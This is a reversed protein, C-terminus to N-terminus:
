ARRTRRAVVVAGSGTVLLVLGAALLWGMDSGTVALARSRGPSAAPPAAAPPTVAGVAATLTLAATGARGSTIGVAGLSGSGTQTGAPITVTVQLNGGADAVHTGLDPGSGGNVILSLRVQEGPLMGTVGVTVASGVAVSSPSVAVTVAPAATVTLTAPDTYAGGFENAFYARYQSGSDAVRATFSLTPSTAGTIDTWVGAILRQWQVSPAPDGTASATFAVSTGDVATVDAPDTVVWAVEGAASEDGDEQDAVFSAVWSMVSNWNVTIENTSWSQIDDIYCLQPACMHEDNYLGSIVPDWTGTSSNPGGAVSGPPPNPMSPEISNAFWRSHQNESFVDGYATISSNNLANRGLLYDMSELVADAFRQDSTLDFATGLVVQNNLVMSNSGWEYIGDATGPYATGFPQAAQWVLYQEAGAVVSERIATRGAIDSEVTALDLRGLGATEGWSIGSRTWIDATHFPSALVADEFGQEGTTLFLEAAAWYFEDGVASDNYPGGGPSPDANPAPQYRDPNALAAAYAVRGAALLEAAFDADYEAWLRAGQAAVAAFNLTAATTPPHLRREQPDESPLLPLGTWDVDHIKHHVMGALEEGAPVQMSMMWELEWRAEDLPDPVGNSQEDLPIDLSGDGLDAPDATPAYLTREYTSMVQAVAIGGNVVYKGHDGADYWGGVVDLTYDCTWDGYLNQAEAPTICPVAYDGQNGGPADPNGVHGAPRTYEADGMISGDIAIGSRVPYFYNLADYRLQQYIGADIVFPYSEEGDAVLTYTGPTEVQGFDITHVNLGATADTGAPTTQGTAVAVGGLRLEWAVADTTDTVLTAQKPGEPLYGVQNVRVRPGTQPSYPEEVTGGLLSVDDLCFTWADPAGGVQFAVQGSAPDEGASDPFGESATYTFAYPALSTTLTPNQEFLTAYPADDDGIIARIPRGTSSSAEFSLTYTTGADIVIGNVGIIQDWRNTTGGPLEVCLVGDTISTTIGAGSTFFPDLTGDEFDGGVVQEAGAPTISFDDICLDFAAGQNGLQFSVNGSPTSWGSPTFSFEVHQPTPSGDLAVSQGFANPFGAGGQMPVTVARSAHADFSVTYTVGDEYEVGDHQLAVDWPNGTHAPVVGCLEGATVGSTIGGGYSFWGETDVDFTHVTTVPGALAAPALATTVLLVASTLGALGAARQHHARPSSVM